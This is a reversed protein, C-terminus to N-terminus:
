NIAKITIRTRHPIKSYEAFLVIPDYQEPILGFLHATLTTWSVVSIVCGVPTRSWDTFVESMTTHDLAEAAAVVLGVAIWGRWGAKGPIKM